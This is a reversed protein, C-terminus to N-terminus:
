AIQAWRTQVLSILEPYSDAAEPRSFMFGQVQNGCQSGFIDKLMQYQEATEVGEAVVSMDLNNALQVITTVIARERKVKPADVIFSRDIKLTNFPLSKLCNLSSYGTGFDDLALRIGMGALQNLIVETRQYDDILSGETLELELWHPECGTQQLVDAIMEVLNAQRFQRSSLNVAVRVPTEKEALEVSFRCAQELVWRGVEVILGTEELLPIFDAPSIMGKEPHHWRLLAEVGNLGGEHMEVKPQYLVQLQEDMHFLMNRMDLEMNMLEQAKDDDSKLYLRYGNRGAQKAKYMAVDAKKLLVQVDTSDIPCRSVGISPTVLLPREEICYQRSLEDMIKQVVRLIDSESALDTLLVAFEDGGLRCVTDGERVASRLRRAVEVLLSDGVHHGLTDNIIKFRDLDLFLVAAFQDRWRVRSVMQSVRDIFLSRNPLDTLPDYQALHLLENQADLRDTIDTCISCIRYIEGHDDFLPFKVCLHFHDGDCTPLIEECQIAKRAKLVEEDNYQITAVVDNEFIDEDRLGIVGNEVGVLRNTFATNVLDYRGDVGKLSILASSNNIISSLKESTVELEKEASTRMAIEDRLQCNIAILEDNREQVQKSLKERTLALAEITNIDRFSRLASTVCSRMKEATLESKDRYDNIDYDVMVRMEPAQGPQGTRLIIRIFHNNLDKRIYDVLDLGAHDSEMVVDLLIVAFQNDRKLLAKAQTGSYAHTLKLRKGDFVYNDLILSTVDHIAQDDDVVLVSWCDTAADQSPQENMARDKPLVPFQLLREAM